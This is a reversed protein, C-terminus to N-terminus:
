VKRKYHRKKLPQKSSDVIGLDGKVEDYLKQGAGFLAGEAVGFISGKVIEDKFTKMGAEIGSIMNGAEGSEAIGEVGSLVLEAMPALMAM